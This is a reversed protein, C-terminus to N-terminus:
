IPLELQSVLLLVQITPQIKKLRDVFAFGPMGPLEHDVLALDFWEGQANEAAADATAFARVDFGADALVLVLRRRAKPDGHVILIKKVLNMVPTPQSVHTAHPRWHLGCGRDPAM